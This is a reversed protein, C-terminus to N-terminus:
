VVEAAIQNVNFYLLNSLACGFQIDVLHETRYFNIKYQVVYYNGQCDMSVITENGEYPTSAIGAM